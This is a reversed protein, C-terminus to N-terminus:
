AVEFIILIEIWIMEGAASQLRPINKEKYDKPLKWM